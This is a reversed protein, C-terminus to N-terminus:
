NSNACAFRFPLFYFQVSRIIPAPIENRPVHLQASLVKQRLSSHTANYRWEAMCKRPTCLFLNGRKHTVNKTLWNVLLQNIPAAFHNRESNTNPASISIPTVNSSKLDARRHRYSVTIPSIVSQQRRTLQNWSIMTDARDLAHTQPREIKRPDRTRIGCLAHINTEHTQQTNHLYRRSCRASWENLPARGSTHQLQTHYLFRSVLRDLGSNPQQQAFYIPELVKSSCEAKM